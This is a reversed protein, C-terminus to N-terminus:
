QLKRTHHMHICHRSAYLRIANRRRRMAMLRTAEIFVIFKMTPTHMRRTVHDHIIAGICQWSAAHLSTIEAAKRGGGGARLGASRTYRSRWRRWCCPWGLGACRRRASAWGHRQKRRSPRPSGSGASGRRQHLVAAPQAAPAPACAAPLVTLPAFIAANQGSPSNQVYYTPLAIQWAWSGDSPFTM